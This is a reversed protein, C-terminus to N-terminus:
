KPSTRPLPAAGRPDWSVVSHSDSYTGGRPLLAVRLKAPQCLPARGVRRGVIVLGRSVQPIPSLLTDSALTKNYLASGGRIWQTYVTISFTYFHTYFTISFTYFHNCYLLLVFLTFTYNM